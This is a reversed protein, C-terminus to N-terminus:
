PIPDHCRIRGEVQIKRYQHLDHGCRHLRDVAMFGGFIVGHRKIAAEAFRSCSPHMPCSRGTMVPSVFKRYTKIGLLLATEPYINLLSTTHRTKFTATRRPPRLSLGAAALIVHESFIYAEPLLIESTEAVPSNKEFEWPAKMSDAYVANATLPLIFGAILALLIKVGVALVNAHPFMKSGTVFRGSFFEPAINMGYVM